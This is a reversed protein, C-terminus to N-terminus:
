IIIGVPLFYSVITAILLLVLETRRGFRFKDFAMIVLGSILGVPIVTVNGVASGLRVWLLGLAFVLVFKLLYHSYIIQNKRVDRDINKVTRAERHNISRGGGRSTRKKVWMKQKSMSM